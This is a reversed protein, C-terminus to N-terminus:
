RVFDLSIKCISVNHNVAAEYLDTGEEKENLDGHLWYYATGYPDLKKITKTAYRKRQVKNTFVIKTSDTFESPLTVSYFCDKEHKDLLLKIANKTFEKIKEQDGWVGKRWERDKKCISFAIAPIEEIAAQWCAGLTGSSMISGLAANDGYNIGSLVLKPKEFDECYIGFLACDAPTGNLGYMEEEIKHVRLPKHLTLAKSIASKQRDPIIAYTKDFDKAVEYLMKIGECYGDDNTVLITM